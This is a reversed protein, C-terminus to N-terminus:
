DARDITAALLGPFAADFEPARALALADSRAADAPDIALQRRLVDGLLERSMAETDRLFRACQEGLTRLPLASITEIADIYSPAVDLAEVVERERAFRERRLPALERAVVAGRAADM